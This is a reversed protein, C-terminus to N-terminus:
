GWGTHTFTHGLSVSLSCFEKLDGPCHTKLM